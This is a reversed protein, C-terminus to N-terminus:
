SQMLVSHMVRCPFQLIFHRLPFAIIRYAGAQGQGSLVLLPLPIVQVSLMPLTHSLSATCHFLPSSCLAAIALCDLSLSQFLESVIHISKRRLPIARFQQSRCHCLNTSYLTPVCHIRVAHVRLPMVLYRYSVLHLPFCLLQMPCIPVANAITHPANAIIPFAQAQLLTSIPLASLCHLPEPINQYAVAHIRFSVRHCPFAFHPM